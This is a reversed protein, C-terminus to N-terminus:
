SEEEEFEVLGVGAKVMDGAGHVVRKVVGDHPSRIVTEMKMSEIVLLAQNKVVKEGEKVEVRLVKCPMPSLVSNTVDKMGLVKEAWKPVALQLRYQRGLHFLILNKSEPDPIITTELRTHPFFSQVVKTDPSNKSTVVVAEKDAVSASFTHPGIQTVSVAVPSSAVAPDSSTEVLDFRRPQTFGSGFGFTSPNNQLGYTKPDKNSTYLGIAAQVWVEDPISDKAFLSERHKEIYGTEVDGSVFDESVCMRKLFEINTIPGAIEYKELAAHLKQLAARRDPGQVILKAIMPDYHSTVEDGVTFGADIRVTDTITPTKM